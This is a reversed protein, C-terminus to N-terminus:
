DPKSWSDGGNGREAQQREGDRDCQHSVYVSAM